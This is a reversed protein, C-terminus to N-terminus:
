SPICFLLDVHFLVCILVDVVVYYEHRYLAGNLESISESQFLLYEHM